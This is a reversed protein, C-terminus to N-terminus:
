WRGVNESAALYWLTLIRPGTLLLFAQGLTSNLVASILQISQFPMLHSKEWNVMLGLENYTCIIKHIQDSSLENSYAM